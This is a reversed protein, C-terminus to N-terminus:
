PHNISAQDTATDVEIMTALSVWFRYCNYVTKEEEKTTYRRHLTQQPKIHPPSFAGRLRNKLRLDAITLASSIARACFNLPSHLEKTILM